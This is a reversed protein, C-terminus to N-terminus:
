ERAGSGIAYPVSGIGAAWADRADYIGATSSQNNNSTTNMGGTTPMPAGRGQIAKYGIYALVGIGLAVAATELHQKM